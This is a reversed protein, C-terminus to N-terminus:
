IRRRTTSNPETARVDQRAKEIKVEYGPPLLDLDNIEALALSTMFEIDATSPRLKTLALDFAAQADLGCDTALEYAKVALAELEAGTWGESGAVIAQSPEFNDQDLYRRAMVALIDHRGAADPVLFPIKKDFRGPRKMAADMLDPRNTAALFVVRGRLSTDSMFDLMRQFIRADQQSGSGGGGRQMAGEIEDIFVIVPALNVIAKIAKELNREGEGQWKSVIAAMRFRAFNVGATNAAAEAMISKGTGAPGTFLIGMPVRRSDGRRIPEIVNNTMFRKVHELGGIDKMGWRPPAMDLIAGYEADVIEKRKAALSKWDMTESMLFIDELNVLTLITTERVVRSVAEELPCDFALGPGEASAYWRTFAARDTESPLPVEIAVWGSTSTRIATHLSQLTDALLIINNGKNGIAVDQGWAALAAVINRDTATMMAVAADPALFEAYDIIVVLNTTKVLATGILRMAAEPESPLETPTSVGTLAALPNIQKNGPGTAALLIAKAADAAEFGTARSYRVVTKESKELVASLFTPLRGAPRGAVLVHDRVNGHLVFAHSAAQRSQLSKLWTPTM